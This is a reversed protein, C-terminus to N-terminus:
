KEEPQWKGCAQCKVAQKYVGGRNFGIVQLEGIVGCLQCPTDDLTALVGTVGAEAPFILGKSKASSRVKKCRTDDDSKPHPKAPQEKSGNDGNKVKEWRREGVAGMKELEALISPVKQLTIIGPEDESRVTFQCDYGGLNFKINFSYKAENM